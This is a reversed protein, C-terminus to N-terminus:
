FGKVRKIRGMPWGPGRQVFDNTAIPTNTKMYSHTSLQLITYLALLNAFDKEYKMFKQITHNHIIIEGVKGKNKKKKDM